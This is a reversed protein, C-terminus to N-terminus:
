RLRFLLEDLRVDLFGQPVPVYLVVKMLLALVAVFLAMWLPTLWRLRSLLALSLTLALWTALMFGLQPLAVVYASWVAAFGALRPLSSLPPLLATDPDDAAAPKPGAQVAAAQPRGNRAAHHLWLMRLAHVLLFAAAGGTVLMPYLAVGARLQSAVWFLWVSGALLLGCFVLRLM